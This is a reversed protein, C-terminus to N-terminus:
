RTYEDPDIRYWRLLSTPYITDSARFVPCRERLYLGAVEGAEKEYPITHYLDVWDDHPLAVRADNTAGCEEVQAIRERLYASYSGLREVQQAHTLEHYLVYSLRDLDERERVLVVHCGEKLGKYLGWADSMDGIGYPQLDPVVKVLTVGLGMDQVAERAKDQDLIPIM